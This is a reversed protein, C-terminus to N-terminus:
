TRFGEPMRALRGILTRPRRAAEQPQLEEDVARLAANAWIRYDPEGSLETLFARYRPLIQRQNFLREHRRQRWGCPTWWRMRRFRSYRGPDRMAARSIFLELLPWRHFTDATFTEGEWHDIQRRLRWEVGILFKCDDISSTGLGLVFNETYIGEFTARALGAVFQSMQRRHNHLNEFGFSHRSHMLCYQFPAAEGQHRAWNVFQTIHRLMKHSRYDEMYSQLAGRQQNLRLLRLQLFGALVGGLLLVTAVAYVSTAVAIATNQWM